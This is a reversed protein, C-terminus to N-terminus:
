IMGEKWKWLFTRMAVVFPRLDDWAFYAFARCGWVSRLWQFVTLEKRKRYAKFARVDTEFYWWKIGSQCRQQAPLPQGILDRYALYPLHVGGVIVAEEGLATRTNLEMLKFAGDRPDRRFEVNGIGHFGVSRIFRTGLEVVRPEDVTERLTGNGLGPPFQRLKRGVGAGLVQGSANAYFYLSYLNEEKGPIQEQILVDLGRQRADQYGKLLEDHSKAILLKYGNQYARIWRHPVVPKLICPYTWQGNLREVDAECTPSLTRPLPIGVEAALHYQKRKDLINELVARSPLPIYFHPDLQERYRAVFEVFRDTSPILVSRGRQRRAEQLLHELWLEQHEDIRPLVHSTAYRSYRGPAHPKYTLIVVEVGHRGLDRAVSLAQPDSDMVYATPWAHRNM